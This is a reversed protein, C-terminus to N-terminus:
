AQRVRSRLCVAARILPLDCEFEGVCCSWLPALSNTTDRVLIVADHGPTINHSPSSIRRAEPMVFPSESSSANTTPAPGVPSANAVCSCVNPARNRIM